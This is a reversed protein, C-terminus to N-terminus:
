PDANQLGQLYREVDGERTPSPARSTVPAPPGPVPALAPAPAPAVQYVPAPQVVVPSPAVVVSPVVVPYPRYYCPGWYHHYCPRPYVPFGIGIGVSWGARAGPALMMLVAVALGGLLTLRRHMLPEKRM